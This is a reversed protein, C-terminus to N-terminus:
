ADHRELNSELIRVATLLAILTPFPDNDTAFRLADLVVLVAINVGAVLLLRKGVPDVEVQWVAWLGAAILWSPMGALNADNSLAFVSFRYLRSVFPLVKAFPACLYLLLVTSLLLLSRPMWHALFNTLTETTLLQAMSSLSAPIVTPPAFALAWALLLAHGRLRSALTSVLLYEATTSIKGGYDLAEGWFYVTLLLVAALGTDQSSAVWQLVTNYAISLLVQTMEVSIRGVVHWAAPVARFVATLSLCFLLLDEHGAHKLLADTSKSSLLAVLGSDLGAVIHTGM